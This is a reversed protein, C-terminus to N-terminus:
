DKSRGIYMYVESPDCQQRGPNGAEWTLDAASRDLQCMRVTGEFVLVFRDFRMSAENMRARGHLM